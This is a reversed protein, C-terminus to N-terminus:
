VYKLYLEEGTEPAFTLTIQTASDRTFEKGEVLMTGNLTLWIIGTNSATTFVTLSGNCQASLNEVTGSITAPKWQGETSNYVLAQGDAPDDLIEIDTIERLYGSGMLKGKYIDPVDKLDKYSIKRKELIKIIEKIDADKGNNGDKGDIGNKGDNGDLGDNGVKGNDGSKGDIGDIGDEGKDGKDGKISDGKDGKISDGKDGKVSDGKEGKIVDLFNQMSKASEMVPKLKEIAEVVKKNGSDGNELVNELLQNTETMKKDQNELINDLTKNDM